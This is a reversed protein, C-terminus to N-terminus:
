VSYFLKFLNTVNGALEYNVKGLEGEDADHATITIISTTAPSNEEVQAEYLEQTFVPEEDNINKLNVIVTATATLRPLGTDWAQM